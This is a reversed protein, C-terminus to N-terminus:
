STLGNECNGMASQVKKYGQLILSMQYEIMIM